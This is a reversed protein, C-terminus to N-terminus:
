NDLRMTQSRAELVARYTNAIYGIKTHGWVPVPKAGIPASLASWCSELDCHGASDIGRQALHLALIDRLFVVDAVVSELSFLLLLQFNRLDGNNGFFFPELIALLTDLLLLELDALQLLLHFSDNRVLPVLWVDLCDLIRDLRQLSVTVVPGSKAKHTPNLLFLPFPLTLISVRFLGQASRRLLLTRLRHGLHRCLLGARDRDCSQHFGPVKLAVSLNYSHHGTRHLAALLGLVLEGEPGSSAAVLALHFFLHTTNGM